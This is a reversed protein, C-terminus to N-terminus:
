GSWKIRGSGSVHLNEVYVTDTTSSTINTGIIFSRDHLLLNNRGGLIGGFNVSSNVTNNGFITNISNRSTKLYPSASSSLSSLSASVDNYGPISLVSTAKLTTFTAPNEVLAPRFVKIPM